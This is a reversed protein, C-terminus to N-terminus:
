KAPLGLISRAEAATAMEGGISRIISVAKEVLQANTQALEGKNLYFNDEMGVRIHGGMLFAQAVMPFEARGVGFAAWVTNRPLASKFYAVMEATAPAGWPIGLAFQFISAAPVTGDKLMKLALALHGADFIELEPLSGAERVGKAIAEIQAPVNILAGNGFNLSGMDLTCIEPKLDLIHRVRHTPPRVNSGAAFTNTEELGPVFRAGPGTTLNLIINSDSARITEVVEQYYSLEMSPKGTEPDRVHIHAIAAGAQGAEIVAQAIQKPTVPLQKFKHAVDDGGTVACTLITKDSM